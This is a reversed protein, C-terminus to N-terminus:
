FAALKFLLPMVSGKIFPSQKWTWWQQCQHQCGQHIFALCITLISIVHMECILLFTRESFAIVSLLILTPLCWVSCVIETFCFLVSFVSYMVFDIEEGWNVASKLFSACTAPRLYHHKTDFCSAFIIKSLFRKQMMWSKLLTM